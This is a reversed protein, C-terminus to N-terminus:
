QASGLVSMVSGIKVLLMATGMLDIGPLTELFAFARHLRGRAPQTNVGVSFQAV